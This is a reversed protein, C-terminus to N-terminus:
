FGVICKPLKSFHLRPSLPRLNFTLVGVPARGLTKYIISITIAACVHLLSTGFRLSASHRGWKRDSRNFILHTLCQSHRPNLAVSLQETYRQDTESSQASFVKCDWYFIFFILSFLFFAIIFSYHLCSVSSFTYLRPRNWLLPGLSQAQTTGKLNWQAM